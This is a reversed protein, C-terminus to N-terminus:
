EVVLRALLARVELHEVWTSIHYERRATLNIVRDLDGTVAFVLPRGDTFAMAVHSLGQQPGYQHRVPKYKALIEAVIHLDGGKVTRHGAHQQHLRWALANASASTYQAEPIRKFVHISDINQAHLAVSFLMAVLSATARMPPAFSGSSGERGRRTSHYRGVKGGELAFM